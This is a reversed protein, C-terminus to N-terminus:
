GGGTSYRASWPHDLPVVARLAERAGGAALWAHLVSAALDTAAYPGPEHRGTGYPAPGTHRTGPGDAPGGRVGFVGRVGLVYGTGVGPVAAVLCGPHRALLDDVRARAAPAPLPVRSVLVDAHEALEPRGPADPDARLHVDCALGDSPLGGSALGGIPLGGYPPHGCAPRVPALRGDPARAPPDARVFARGHSM